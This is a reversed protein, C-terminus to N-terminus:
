RRVTRTNTAAESVVPAVPALPALPAVPAVPTVPAVPAVPALPALLPEASWATADWPAGLPRGGETSALDMPALGAEPLAPLLATSVTTNATFYAAM